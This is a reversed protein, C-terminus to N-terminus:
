MIQSFFLKHSLLNDIPILSFVQKFPEKKENVLLIMFLVKSQNNIKKYRLFQEESCIEMLEQYKNNEEFQILKEKNDKLLKEHEIGLKIVKELFDTINKAKCEIYFEKETTKCFFKYDPNLSSKVFDKKNQEYNHTKELIEYNEPVFFYSRVDQEWAEGFKFNSKKISENKVYNIIKILESLM